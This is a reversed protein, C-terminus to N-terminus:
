KSSRYAKLRKRATELDGKPTAQSKKVFGHLLIMNGNEIGFFMRAIRDKLNTRVEYLGQGLPKCVPMGIPWGFEVTRIDEGIKLRDAKSLDKLWDRVPEAGTEGVFFAVAIKKAIM